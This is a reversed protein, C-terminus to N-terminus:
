AEQTYYDVGDFTITTYDMALERAAQEWDICNNPWVADTRVLDCDEAFEQAYDDFHSERIFIAGFGWSDESFSDVYEKKLALLTDLETQDYEDFTNEDPDSNDKIHELWEIREQADRGDIRDDTNTIPTTNM